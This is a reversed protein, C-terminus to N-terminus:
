IDLKLIHKIKSSKYCKRNIERKYLHQKIRNNKGYVIYFPKNNFEIDNYTFEGDIIPDLIVYVYYENM